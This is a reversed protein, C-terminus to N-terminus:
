FITVGKISLWLKQNSVTFYSKSESYVLSHILKVIILTIGTYKTTLLGGYKCWNFKGIFITM